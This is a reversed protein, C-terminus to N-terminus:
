TSYQSAKDQVEAPGSDGPPNKSTPNFGGLFRYAIYVLVGVVLYHVVLMLVIVFVSPQFIIVEPSASSVVSPATSPPISPDQAGDLLPTSEQPAGEFPSPPPCSPGAVPSSPPTKPPLTRESPSGPRPAM